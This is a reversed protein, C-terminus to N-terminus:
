VALDIQQMMGPTGDEKLFVGTGRVKGLLDNGMGKLSFESGASGLYIAGVGSQALSALSQVDKGGGWIRLKDFVRDNGDIWGNHDDDWAALDAFGNGSQTGFLELGSDVCGNGNADLALFGSGPALSPIKEMLGKGDLDFAVRDDTLRVGKGDLNVVLPDKLKEVKVTGCSMSEGVEQRSMCSYLNLSIQRGDATRVMGAASFAARESKITKEYEQYKLTFSDTVLADGGQVTRSRGRVHCQQWCSDAVTSVTKGPLMGDLIDLLMQTAHNRMMEEKSAGRALPKLGAEASASSVTAALEQSFAQKREAYLDDFGQWRGDREVQWKVRSEQEVQESNTSSLIMESTDIKM